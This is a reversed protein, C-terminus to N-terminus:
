PQNVALLPFKPSWGTVKEPDLLRSSGPEGTHSVQIMDLLFGSM